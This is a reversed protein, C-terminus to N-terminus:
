RLIVGTFFPAALLLVLLPRYRGGYKAIFYAVPWSYIVCIFTAAVAGVISRLLFVRYAPETFLTRYNDFNWDAFLEYSKTRWFSFVLVATMPLLLNLGIFAVGPVVLLAFPSIRPRHLIAM